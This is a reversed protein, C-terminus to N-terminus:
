INPPPDFTLSNLDTLNKFDLLYLPDTDEYKNELFNYGLSNMKM